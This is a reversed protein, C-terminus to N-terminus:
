WESRGQLLPLYVIGAIERFLAGLVEDEGHCLRCLPDQGEGRSYMGGRWANMAAVIGAEEGKKGAQLVYALSTEPFFPLPMRLGRLYLRFLSVLVDWGAVEPAFSCTKDKGVVLTEGGDGGGLNFFLHRIWGGLLDSGKLKAFRYLVQGTQDFWDLTGTITIGDIELSCSRSLCQRGEIREHVQRGLTVTEEALETFAVQGVSGHPLCGMGQFHPYEQELSRGLLSDDLILSGLQYRELPVLEFPESVEQSDLGRPQELGLRYRCFFRTPNRYFSLLDDLTVQRCESTVEALEGSLFPRQVPPAEWVTAARCNRESYSFLGRENSRFYEPSFGHLPHEVLHGGARPFRKVLYERLESVVVSPQLVGGDSISKGVYSVLLRQRASLIAELFLYRDDLRRSRDGLRPRATILDFSPVMSSRPFDGDNMGLLCVVQFPVARMPLLECFTIGGTLFGMSLGEAALATELWGLIVALELSADYGSQEQLETMVNLQKRIMVAEPDDEEPTLILADFIETLVSAWQALTRPVALERIMKFLGEIWNLFRGLTETAGGEMESYPLIGAFLQRGDGAMAYGLLLRDLGARWTNERQGPLGIGEKDFEDIGWRIRLDEVWRKIVELDESSFGGRHRIGEFELLALIRGVEFRGGNLELIHFLIKVLRGEHRLSRDAITFPLTKGRADRSEFVARILPSYRNIDPAMVIIERPELGPIEAFAALLQDHLVELERLPSHCSHFTITRDCCIAEDQCPEGVQLALIDEQVMALMTGRSIEQDGPAVFAEDTELDFEQLLSFLDRGQRGLSALLPNEVTLHLAQDDEPGALRLRDMTREPLIDFWYERCPNMVYFHVDVVRALAAFLQLHFPPLSSIGFIAFRGPLGSDPPLQDLGVFFDQYLEARTVAQGAGPRQRLERWLRAQWHDGEGGEWLTMMEPRYILYQDFLDAVRGALQFLKVGGGGMLYGDIPEFGKRGSMEALVQMLQWRVVDKDFSPRSAQEPLVIRFMRGLFENPFPCDLNAIVGLQGALMMSLWRAMGGSQLVVTEAIMPPLPQEAMQRALMEALSELRNSEHLYFAM